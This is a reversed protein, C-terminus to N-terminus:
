LVVLTLVALFESQWNQFSEFWFQSSTFYDWMTGAAKGHEINEQQHLRAGGLLHGVFSGIFLLLLAISLSHEYLRLKWGGEKVPRPSDKTRKPPTNGKEEPDNSEASGKQFLFATLLVYAGMQLFESEWNEFVAEWFHGSQLYIDFTMEARGHDRQEENHSKWGTLAQGVLLLLFIGTLVISLGNNRLFTKM